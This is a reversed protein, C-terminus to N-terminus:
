VIRCNIEQGNTELASVMTTPLITAAVLASAVSIKKFNRSM